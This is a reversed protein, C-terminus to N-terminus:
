KVASMTTNQCLPGQFIYSSISIEGKLYASGYNGLVVNLLLFNWKRGCRMQLGNTKEFQISHELQLAKNGLIKLNPHVLINAFFLENAFVKTDETSDIMTVRGLRVKFGNYEAFRRVYLEAEEFTNFSDGEKLPVPEPNNHINNLDENRYTIGEFYTTLDIDDDENFDEMIATRIKKLYVSTGAGSVASRSNQLYYMQEKGIGMGLNELYEGTGSKKQDCARAWTASG